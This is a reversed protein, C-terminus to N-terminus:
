SATAKRRSVNRILRFASLLIGSLVGILAGFPAGFILAASFIDVWYVFGSMSKTGTWGSDAVVLAVVALFGAAIWIISWRHWHRSALVLGVFAWFLTGTAYFEGASVSLNSIYFINDGSDAAYIGLCLAFGLAGGGVGFLLVRVIRRLWSEAAMPQATTRETSRATPQAKPQAKLPATPRKTPRKAPAKQTPKQAPKRAQKKAPPPKPAAQTAPIPEETRANPLGILEDLEEAVTALIDRRKRLKDLLERSNAKTGPDRLGRKLELLLRSQADYSLTAEGDIEQYLGGLYSLPVSPPDPLPDPLPDPPPLSTFARALRIVSDRDDGLWGVFQVTSLAPPLLATSIKGIDATPVVPLIPKGLDMAYSWERKCATSSLGDQTLVFVFVDCARVKALIQDWWAQGGSLEQDFWASHGLAEIDAALDRATAESDRHYSVFITSM